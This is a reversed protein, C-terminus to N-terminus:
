KRSLTLYLTSISCYSACNSQCSSVCSLTASTVATGPPVGCTTGCNLNCTDVPCYLLYNFIAKQKTEDKHKPCNM